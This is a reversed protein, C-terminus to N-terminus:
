EPGRRYQLLYNARAEHEPRLVSPSLLVHARKGFRNIHVLPEEHSVGCSHCARFRDGCGGCLTQLHAILPPHDVSPDIALGM